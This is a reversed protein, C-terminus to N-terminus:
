RGPSAAWRRRCSRAAFGGPLSDPHDGTGAAEGAASRFQGGRGAPHRRGQELGGAEGARGVSVAPDGAVRGLRRVAPRHRHHRFAPGPRALRNDALVILGLAQEGVFQGHSDDGANAEYWGPALEPLVLSMRKQGPGLTKARNMDLAGSRQYVTKGGADRVVLQAALDDTFRDNVLVQLMLKDGPRFINGPRGTSLAVQPVQSVSVDDFWATGHIDQAFLTGSGLTRTAYQMPQLLGVEIVLFAAKRDSATLNVSLKKWGEDRQGAAYLESYTETGPIPRHDIDVFYAGIRGRAHPLM